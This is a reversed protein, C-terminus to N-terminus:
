KLITMRRAAAYEGTQIRYFYMGSAIHTVDWTIAYAGPSQFEDILTEVKRGLIDYIELTIEM